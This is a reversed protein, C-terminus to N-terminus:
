GIDASNNAYLVGLKKSKAKISEPIDKDVLVGKSKLIDYLVEIDSPDKIVVNASTNLSPMPAEYVGKNYIMRQTTNGNCEVFQSVIEPTFKGKPNFDIIEMVINNELRAYKSM